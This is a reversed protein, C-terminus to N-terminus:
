IENNNTKIYSKENNKTKCNYFISELKNDLDIKM